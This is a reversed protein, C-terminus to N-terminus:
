RGAETVPRRLPSFSIADESHSAAAATHGLRALLATTLDRATRVLASRELARSLSSAGTLLAAGQHDDALTGLVPLGLAEAVEDTPYRDRRSPSSHGVLVLAPTCGEATLEAARAAVRPLEAVIPRCVLLLLDAATAIPLAPSGPDLRGCDVFVDADLQGLVRSLSPGAVELATRAPASVPPALLVALGAVEQVHEAILQPSLARRGSAALTALGPDPVLGFRAALDGGAPDAEVVLVRRDAPWVHALALAATTTGPSSKASAIAIVSM